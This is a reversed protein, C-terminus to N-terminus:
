SKTQKEKLSQFYDLQSTITELKLKQKTQSVLGNQEMGQTAQQMLVAALTSNSEQLHQAWQYLVGNQKYKKQITDLLRLEKLKKYKLDEIQVAIFKNLKQEQDNQVGTPQAESGKNQDFFVALEALKTLTTTPLERKGAEYMSLQSKPIALYIAMMEQSLGLQNRLLQTLKMKHRNKNFINKACM